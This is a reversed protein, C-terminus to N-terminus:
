WSCAAGKSPVVTGGAGVQDVFSVLAMALLHQIQQSAEVRRDDVVDLIAGGTRFQFRAHDLQEFREARGIM